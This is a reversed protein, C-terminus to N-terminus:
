TTPEGQRRLATSLPSPFRVTYRVEGIWSALEEARADVEKRRRAPVGVCYHTRISGDPGQDWAGVVGGDVWITPGANGMRDFTDACGAPLYWDRQKWGMTTPDLGPLLAVWSGPPSVEDEDGPALFAEGGDVRVPVAGCDALAEKTTRGTWGTWWQLDAATGPGFATLWRLALERAADRETREGLGGPLWSDVAAYTYAGNVWTGTPRTRIIQGEFGLNLLVRTHASVEASYAKGPAMVIKHTLAPVRTGLSRATMPGHEHLADLVQARADALWAEPDDIGNAALLKATRRHEPAALKRTAAAHVLRVVEPTCVWLTRRMGHHRFVTRDAYLAQEVARLDPHRMRALVSLYVTVPDTSHLAVVSDSVEAVDATRESPHLRHRLALRARREEVTVMRSM